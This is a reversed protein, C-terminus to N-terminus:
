RWENLMAGSNDIARRCLRPSATRPLCEHQGLPQCLPKSSHESPNPEQLHKRRPHGRLHRKLNPNRSFASSACIDEFRYAFLRTHQAPSSEGFSFRLEEVIEVLYKPEQSVAAKSRVLEEHHWIEVRLGIADLFGSPPVLSDSNSKTAERLDPIMSPVNPARLQDDLAPSRRPAVVSRLISRGIGVLWLTHDRPRM